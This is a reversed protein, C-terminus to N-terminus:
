AGDLEGIFGLGTAPLGHVTNDEAFTKFAAELVRM